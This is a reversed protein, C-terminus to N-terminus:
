CGPGAIYNTIERRVESIFATNFKYRQFFAVVPAAHICGENLRLLDMFEDALKRANSTSDVELEVGHERLWNEIERVNETLFFYRYNDKFCRIEEQRVWDFFVAHLAPEISLKVETWSNLRAFRSKESM